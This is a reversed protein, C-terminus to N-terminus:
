SERLIRSRICKLNFSYVIYNLFYRWWFVNEILITTLIHWPRLKYEQKWEKFCFMKPVFIWIGNWIKIKIWRRKWSKLLLFYTGNLFYRNKLFSASKHEQLNRSSSKWINRQIVKRTLSNQLKNPSFFTANYVTYPLYIFPSLAFFFM